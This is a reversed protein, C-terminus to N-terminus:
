RKIMQRPQSERHGVKESKLIFSCKDQRTKKLGTITPAFPVFNQWITITKLQHTAFSFFGGSTSPKWYLGMFM